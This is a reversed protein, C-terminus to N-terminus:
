RARASIDAFVADLVLDRGTRYSEWTNAARIDPAFAGVGRLLFRNLPWCDDFWGCDSAVDDWATSIYADVGSAPLTVVVGEGRFRLRDGVDEGVITLRDGAWRRFQSAAILGASFTNPGTIVYVRGNSPLAAVVGEVLPLVLDYGGGRNYRFDVIINRPARERVLALARATFQAVTEGEDNTSSNMRLYVAGQESLVRVLFLRRPEQLYLPLIQDARLLTAWGDTEFHTDGPFANLFDWFPDGPLPESDAALTVIEEVGHQDRVRLEVSDGVAEAGLAALAAPATLFYESRYRLWGATGGGVFRRTAAALDEPARGGISVIRRGLLASQTPRAKVVILADATWHLRIPLRRMMPRMLTTHANDFQALAESAILTLEDTSRPPPAGDIIRRFASFQGPTAGRENRMAAERLFRLDNAFSAQAGYAPLDPGQMARVLHMGGLAFFGGALLALLSAVGIAIRGVWRM